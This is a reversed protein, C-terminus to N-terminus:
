SGTRSLFIVEFVAALKDVFWHKMEDTRLVSEIWASPPKM